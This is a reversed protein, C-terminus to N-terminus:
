VSLGEAWAKHAHTFVSMPPISWITYGHPRSSLQWHQFSSFGPMKLCIFADVTWKVSNMGVWGKTQALVSDVHQPLVDSPALKHTSFRGDTYNVFQGWSNSENIKTRTPSRFCEWCNRGPFGDLFCVWRGPEAENRPWRLSVACSLSLETQGPSGSTHKPASSAQIPPNGCSESGSIM